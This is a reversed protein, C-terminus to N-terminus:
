KRWGFWGLRKVPKRYEALEEELNEIKVSQEKILDKLFSTDEKDDKLRERLEKNEDELHSIYKNAMDTAGNSIAQGITSGTGQGKNPEGFVRLLDVTDVLKANRAGSEVKLDGSKVAEQITTRSKRWQRAAKSISLKAM